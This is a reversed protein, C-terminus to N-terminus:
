EEHELYGIANVTTVGSAPSIVKLGIRAQGGEAMFERGLPFQLIVLGSQPTIYWHRLAETATPETTLATLATWQAANSGPAMKRPTFSTGAPSGLTTVRYLEVRFAAQTTTGDFSIGM